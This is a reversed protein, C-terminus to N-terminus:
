LLMAQQEVTLVGTPEAGLSEQFDEISMRTQRGFLGDILGTYFGRVRLARQIERKDSRSLNNELAQLEELSLPRTAADAPPANQAATEEASVQPLSATNSASSAAPAQAAATDQMTAAPDAANATNEAPAIVQPTAAPQPQTRVVTAPARLIMSRSLTESLTVEGSDRMATIVAGLEVTPAAFEVAAVDIGRDAAQDAMFVIPALGPRAEPARTAQVAGEPLTGDFPQSGIIVVGGNGALNVARAFASLPVSRTLLSSARPLTLGPTAVFARNGLMLIPADIYVIAIDTDVAVATFRQLLARLQSDNAAEILLTEADLGQMADNFRAARQNDVDSTILVAVIRPVDTQANAALAAISALLTFAFNRLLTM